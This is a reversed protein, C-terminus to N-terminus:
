RERGREDVPGREVDEERGRRRRTPEDAQDRQERSPAAREAGNGSSGLRALDDRLRGTESVAREDARDAAHRSELFQRAAQKGRASVREGGHAPAAGAAAGRQDGGVRAQDRGHQQEREQTNQSDAREQGPRPPEPSDPLMTVSAHGLLLAAGAARRDRERYAAPTLARAARAPRAALLGAAAPPGDRGSGAPQQQRRGQKYQETEQKKALHEREDRGLHRAWIRNWIEDLQRWAQASFDLQRGDTRRAEVFLHAHPHATNRHVFGIARAGPVAEELWARLMQHVRFTPVDSQEFSVLLRYHTRAAQRQGGRQRGPERNGEVAERAWVYAILSDRLAAYTSTGRWVAPPVHHLLVGRRGEAVASERSIYRLHAAATGARGVTFRCFTGGGGNTSSGSGGNTSSSGTTMTTRTTGSTMTTMTTTATM